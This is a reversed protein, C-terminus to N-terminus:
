DPQYSTSKETSPESKKRDTPNTALPNSLKKDAKETIIISSKTTSSTSTLSQAATSKATSSQSTSSKSTYSQQTLSKVNNTSSPIALPKTSTQTIPLSQLNSKEDDDVIESTPQDVHDKSTVTDAQSDTTVPSGVM